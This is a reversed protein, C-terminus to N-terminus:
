PRFSFSRGVTAFVANSRATDTGEQDRLRGRYGVRLDWDETLERRYAVELNTRTTTDGGGAGVEETRGLGITVDFGSVPNIERFYGFDLQTSLIDEADDTTRATQRATLRVAASPLEQTYSIRGVPETSGTDSDSLGIAFDLRGSAFEVRRSVEITNRESDSATVERRYTAGVFGNPLEQELGLVADFGDIETDGGTTETEITVSSLEASFTLAPNIEYTAGVGLSTTTRETSDADDADYLIQEAFVNAELTPSVQATADIRITDRVSDFLDPDVTGDYNRDQRRLDIGFGLPADIGTRFRARYTTRQLEGDSVILDDEILDGDEDIFFLDDIQRVNYEASLLLDSDAGERTYRLGAVSNVFDFNTGTDPADEYRAITSFSLSLRAVPTESVVEAGFINDFRTTTGISDVALGKNDDVEIESRYDFNVDIGGANQAFACSTGVFSAVGFIAISKAGWRTNM